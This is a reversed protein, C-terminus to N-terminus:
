NAASHMRWLAGKRAMLETFSGDEVIRGDDFVFIHDARMVSALRHAVIVMTIRGRLEDIAQQIRRESENDLASTAEDLLLIEPNGALARALAIRQKQGGSLRAGQEGLMTDYGEPLERIFDDAYAMRCARDVGEFTVSERGFAINERVTEHLLFIDQSVYGVKSRYSALNYSYLDKGDVLISGSEPRLLGEVLDVATSKGSGTRGVIGITKGRAIRFNLPGISFRRDGLEYQFCVDRFEVGDRLARFEEGENEDSYQHSRLDALAEEYIELPATHRAIKYHMNQIIRISLYMRTTAVVFTIFVALEFDFVLYMVIAIIMVLPEFISHLVGETVALKLETRRYERLAREMRDALLRERVYSKFVKYGALTRNVVGQVEAQCRAAIRGWGKARLFAPRLLGYIVFAFISIFITLRWSVLVIICLAVLSEIVSTIFRALFDLLRSIMRTQTVITDTLRGFDRRYLHSLQTRLLAAFIAQKKDREIDVEISKMVVQLGIQLLSKVSVAALIFFMVNLFTPKVGIFAFGRLFAQRLLGGGSSAESLADVLPVLAAISIGGALGAVVPILVALATRAPYNKWCISFAQKVM